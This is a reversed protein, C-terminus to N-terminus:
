VDLDVGRVAPVGGGRTQYTIRLDRLELVGSM